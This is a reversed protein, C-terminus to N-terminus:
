TTRRAEPSSHPSSVPPLPVILRCAATGFLGWVRGKVKVEVLHGNSLVVKIGYQNEEASLNKKEGSSHETKFIRRFTFFHLKGHVIFVSKKGEFGKMFLTPSNGELGVTRM